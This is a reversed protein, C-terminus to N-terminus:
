MTEPVILSGVSNALSISNLLWVDILIVELAKGASVLKV